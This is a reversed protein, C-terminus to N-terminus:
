APADTDKEDQVWLEDDARLTQYAAYGIGAVAVVGVIILTWGGAGLGKKKVIGAKSGYKEYAKTATKSAKKAKKSAEAFAKHANKSLSDSTSHVHKVIDRVRPDKSVELTALASAVSKSVHPLYDHVVKTKTDHAAKRATSYGAAVGPKIQEDVAYRVRPVVQERSVYGAQRGAERAVDSAHELVVRQETLLESATKRLKKLQKTRKRSLGM